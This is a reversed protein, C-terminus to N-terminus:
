SGIRTVVTSGGASAVLRGRRFAENLSADIVHEADTLKAVLRGESDIFEVDARATGGNDHTIRAAVLVGEAPFSRRFQRYRGAFCPM